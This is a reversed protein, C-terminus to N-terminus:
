LKKVKQCLEYCRTSSIAKDNNYLLWLAECVMQQDFSIGSNNAKAATQQRWINNSEMSKRVAEIKKREASTFEIHTLIYELSVDASSGSSDSGSGDSTGSADKRKKWVLFAAVAVVILIIITKKSLKM